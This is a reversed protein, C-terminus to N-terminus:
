WPGYVLMKSVCGMVHAGASHARLRRIADHIGIKSNVIRRMYLSAPAGNKGCSAGAIWRQRRNRKSVPKCVMQRGSRLKWRHGFVEAIVTKTFVVNNVGMRRRKVIRVAYVDLE